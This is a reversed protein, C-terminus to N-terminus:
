MSFPGIVVAIPLPFLVPDLELEEMELLEAVETVEVGVVVMLEGEDVGVAVAGSTHLRVKDQKGLKIFKQESIVTGTRDIHLYSAHMRKTKPALSNNPVPYVPGVVQAEGNVQM